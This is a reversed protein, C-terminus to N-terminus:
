SQRPKQSQTRPKAPVSGNLTYWDMVSMIAELSVGTLLCNAASVISRGLSRCHSSGNASDCIGDKSQSPRARKVGKALEQCYKGASAWVSTRFV